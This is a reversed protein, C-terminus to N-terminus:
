QWPIPYDLRDMAAGCVRTFTAREEDSWQEWITQRKMAGADSLPSEPTSSNRSVFNDAVFQRCADSRDLGFRTEIRAFLNSCEEQDLLQEHRVLFFREKLQKSKGFWDVVDTAHSWAICHTEFDGAQSIHAHKIRSAVVEIGNRVINLLRFNPLFVPLSDFMDHRLSTFTSLARVSDLDGCLDEPFLLQLATARFTSLFVDASVSLERVRHPDGFTAAVPQM